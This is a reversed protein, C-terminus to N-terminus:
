KLTSLYAILDARKQADKLGVYTMLTGPVVERPATIYRDLTAADWTLGSAKNASSYHFNPIIGSHRGVVGFLSPGILNKGEVPSHCITCQTKFVTAGAAADQAMAPVAGLAAALTAALSAALLPFRTRM